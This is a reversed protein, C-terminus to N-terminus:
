DNTSFKAYQQIWAMEHATCGFHHAIENILVHQVLSRVEENNEKAHRILPCRYLYIVDLQKHKTRRKLPVPVGRYLGLLDYRDKMLLEELIEQEAFNKVEIVFNKLHMRFSQPLKQLSEYAFDYIEAIAPMQLFNVERNSVM